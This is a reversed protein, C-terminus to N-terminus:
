WATYLVTVILTGFVHMHHLITYFGIFVKSKTMLEREHDHTGTHRPFAIENFLHQFPVMYLIVIWPLLSTYMPKISLVLVHKVIHSSIHPFIHVKLLTWWFKLGIEAIDNWTVVINYNQVVEHVHCDVTRDNGFKEGLPPM